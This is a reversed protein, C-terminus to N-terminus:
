EKNAIMENYVIGAGNFFKSAQRRTNLKAMETPWDDPNLKKALEMCANKFVTENLRETNTKFRIIKRDFGIIKAAM